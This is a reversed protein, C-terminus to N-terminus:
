GKFHRIFFLNEENKNKNKNKNNKNNILKCQIFGMM